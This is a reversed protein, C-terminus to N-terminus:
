EADADERVLLDPLSKSTEPLDIHVIGHRM